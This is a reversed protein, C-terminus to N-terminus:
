GRSWQKDRYKWTLPKLGLFIRTFFYQKLAVYDCEFLYIKKKVLSMLTYNKKLGSLM